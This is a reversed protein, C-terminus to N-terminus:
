TDQNDWLTTSQLIKINMDKLTSTHVTWPTVLSACVTELPASSWNNHAPVTKNVCLNRSAKKLIGPGLDQICKQSVRCWYMWWVKVLWKGRKWKKPHIVHPQCVLFRPNHTIAALTDIVWDCKFIKCIELIKCRKRIKCIELNACRGWCSLVWGGFM